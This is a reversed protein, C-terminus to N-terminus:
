ENNIRWFDEYEITIVLTSEVTAIEKVAKNKNCMYIGVPIHNFDGEYWPKEDYQYIIKVPTKGDIVGSNVLDGFTIKM